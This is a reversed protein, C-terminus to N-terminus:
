YSVLLSCHFSWPNLLPASRPEFRVKTLTLTATCGQCIVFGKKYVPIATYITYGKTIILHDTHVLILNMSETWETFFFIFCFDVCCFVPIRKHCAFRSYINFSYGSHSTVANSANYLMTYVVQLM